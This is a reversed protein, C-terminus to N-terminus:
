GVNSKAFTLGIYVRQPRLSYWDQSAGQLTILLDTKEHEFSPVTAHGPNGLPQPITLSTQTPLQLGM